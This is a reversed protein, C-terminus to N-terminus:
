SLRLDEGLAILPRLRFVFESAPPTRTRRFVSPTSPIYWPGIFHTSGNQIQKEQHLINNWFTDLHSTKCLRGDRHSPISRYDWGSELVELSQVNVRWAIFHVSTLVFKNMCM